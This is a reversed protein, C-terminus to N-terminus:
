VLRVKSKSSELGELDQFRKAARQIFQHKEEVFNGDEVESMELAEVRALAAQYDKEPVALKLRAASIPLSQRVHADANVKPTNHVRQSDRRESKFSIQTPHEETATSKHDVGNQGTWSGGVSERRRQFTPPGAPQPANAPSAELHSFNESKVPAKRIYQPSATPSMSDSTSLINSFSM